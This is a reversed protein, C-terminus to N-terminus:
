DEINLIDASGTVDFVETVMEAPKRIVIRGNKASMTKHLSLLVRLGSSSIYEVQEFNLIIETIGESSSKIESDLTPSTTTDIRGAVDVVLTQGDTNKTISLTNM